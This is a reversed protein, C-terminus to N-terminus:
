RGQPSRTLSMMEHLGNACGQRGGDYRRRLRLEEDRVKIDGCPEIPLREAEVQGKGISVRGEVGLHRATPRPQVQPKHGARHEVGAKALAVRMGERRGQREVVGLRQEHLKLRRARGEVL